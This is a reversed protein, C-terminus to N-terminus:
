NALDQPLFSTLLGPVEDAQGVLTLEPVLQQLYKFRKPILDAELTVIQDAKAPLKHHHPDCVLDRPTGKLVDLRVTNGQKGEFLPIKLYGLGHM